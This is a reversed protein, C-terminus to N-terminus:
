HLIGFGREALADRTVEAAEDFGMGIFTGIGIAMVIEAKRTHGSTEWAASPTTM